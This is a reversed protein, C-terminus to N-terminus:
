VVLIYELIISNNRNKTRNRNDKNYNNAKIHM